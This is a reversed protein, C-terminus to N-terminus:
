LGTLISTCIFISAMTIHEIMIILIYHSFTNCESIHSYILMIGMIYWIIWLIAVLQYLHKDQLLETPLYLYKKASYDSMVGSVCVGLMLYIVLLMSSHFPDDSFSFDRLTNDLFFSVLTSIHQYISHFLMFSYFTKTNM